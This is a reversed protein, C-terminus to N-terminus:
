PVLTEERNALSRDCATSCVVAFSSCWASNLLSAISNQAPGARLRCSGIDSESVFAQCPPVYTHPIELHLFLVVDYFLGEVGSPKRSVCFRARLVAARALKAKGKGAEWVCCGMVYLLLGDDLLMLV